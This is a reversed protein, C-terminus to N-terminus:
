AQPAYVAALEGHHPRRRCARVRAGHRAALRVMFPVILEVGDNSASATSAVVITLFFVFTHGSIGQGLLSLM